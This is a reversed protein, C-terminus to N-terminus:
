KKQYVFYMQKVHVHLQVLLIDLNNSFIVAIIQLCTGSIFTKVWAHLPGSGGLHRCVVSGAVDNQKSNKNQFSPIKNNIQLGFCGEAFHIYSQVKFDQMHSPSYTQTYSYNNDENFDNIYDYELNLFLFYVLRQYNHLKRPRRFFVDVLCRTGESYWLCCIIFVSVNGLM